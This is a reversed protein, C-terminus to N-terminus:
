AEDDIKAAHAAHGSKQFEAARKLLGEIEEVTRGEAEVDGIKLRVKRGYRATVWAGCVAASAAIVAPGLIIAFQALPYGGGDVADFAIARQSFELGTSHLSTAFTRLEEQFAPENEQPDDSARELLLDVGGERKRRAAEMAENRAFSDAFIKEYEPPIPM